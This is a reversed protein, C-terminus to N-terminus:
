GSSSPARSVRNGEANVHCDKAFYLHGDSKAISEAASQM